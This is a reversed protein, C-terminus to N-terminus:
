AKLEKYAADVAKRFRDADFRENDQEFMTIFAESVGNDHQGMATDEGYTLKQGILEAIADYHRKQFMTTM